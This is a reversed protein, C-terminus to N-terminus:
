SAAANSKIDCAPPLLMQASEPINVWDTGIKCTTALYTPTM